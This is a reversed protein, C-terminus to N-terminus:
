LRLRKKKKKWLNYIKHYEKFLRAQVNDDASGMEIVLKNLKESWENAKSMDFFTLAAACERYSALAIQADAYGQKASLTYLEIAKKKDKNIGIGFDYHLALMYQATANNQEAAKTYWEVAKKLDQEVGKGDQYCMGLNYQADANGQEAAKTFWEVAKALDKGVGKGDKFCNGLNYQAICERTM